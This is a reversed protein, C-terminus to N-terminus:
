HYTLPVGEPVPEVKELVAKLSPSWTVTSNVELSDQAEGIVAVEDGTVMVTFEDTTGATLTEAVAVVIQAPM